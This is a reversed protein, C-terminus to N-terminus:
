VVEAHKWIFGYLPKNYKGNCCMSVNGKSYGHEKFIETLNDWVRILNGELDLQMVKKSNNRAIEKYDTNSKGRYRKTGWSENEKRTSWELNDSNNNEKIENLHNVEQKNLPNDIFALAVLRHIKVKKYKSEKHLSLCQYGERDLLPKLIRGNHIREYGESHKVIRDLSKVRGLNSVQYFGEYGVVDKWTENM